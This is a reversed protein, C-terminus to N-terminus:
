RRIGAGALVLEVKENPEPAPESPTTYVLKRAMVGRWDKVRRQLTRLQADGFRGPHAKRLKALLDKANTDPEKELWLLVDRWVGEFPDKRTRWHRPPRVRAKHTPRAEGQQWLSPLRGLFRELSEGSVTEQPEPSSIASLASQAERISRLLAVPDLRARYESLEEKTQATVTDDQMLRDCPTAPPSYRKITKAGDRMKELLKFSPQFYNVYLRVAKYLHVMTQGAIRGSFRDHGTFRRIVSGNKQEIWAQDNKRYARSRTFEIGRQSCYQVLTENIFASDNDSDIGLVRFPLQRAIAELGEVVLSQERALLPVAETWGTCIDTAVLSHIFSGSLSGGCHAVLDIELFGPPPRNWDNFTRVPIQRGMNARRRRRRRSGATTRIPGLLRDLTAASASVVRSRVEPDLELHGHREMSDVLNPLAAKLRKGCIRDSAEWVVIVAERVAEDYIRRGVVQQREEAVPQTLLRISHKRHHGTITTFEDLIRGKEKKSSQQYRDRITAVLERKAMKSIGGGM